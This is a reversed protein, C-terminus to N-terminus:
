RASEELGCTPCGARRALRVHRLALTAVDLHILTGWPISDDAGALIRLCQYAALNGIAASVAAVVPFDARWAPPEPLLCRLCPGGPRVCLLTAEDDYMAADVFPKGAAMAADALTLREEYTPAAGIALDAERMWRAAEEPRIRADFGQV